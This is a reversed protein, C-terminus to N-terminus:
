QNVALTVTQPTRGSRSIQMVRGTFTEVVVGGARRNVTVVDGLDRLPNFVETVQVEHGRLGAVRQINANAYQQGASSTTIFPSSYYTTVTGYPSLSGDPNSVRLRGTRISASGLTNGASDLVVLRNYVNTNQMGRPAGVLTGGDGGNITDVVAPWANPRM